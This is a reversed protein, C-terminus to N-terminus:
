HCYWLYLVCVCACVFIYIYIYVYLNNCIIVFKYVIKYWPFGDFSIIIHSACHFCLSIVRRGIWGSWMLRGDETGTKHKPFHTCYSDEGVATMKVSRRTCKRTKQGCTRAPHRPPLRQQMSCGVFTLMVRSNPWWGDQLILVQAALAGAFTWANWPHLRGRQSSKHHRKERTSPWTLEALLGTGQAWTACTSALRFCVMVLTAPGRLLWRRESVCSGLFRPQFPLLIVTRNASLSQMNSM